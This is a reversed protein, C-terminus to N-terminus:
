ESVGNTLLAWRMCRDKAGGTNTTFTDTITTFGTSTSGYAGSVGLAELATKAASIASNLQELTPNTGTPSASAADIDYNVGSLTLNSGTGTPVACATTNTACGTSTLTACTTPDSVLEAKAFTDGGAAEALIEAALATAALFKVLNKQETNTISTNLAYADYLAVRKTSSATAALSAALKNIASVGKGKGFASMFAKMGAGNEDLTTFALEAIRIDADDTLKNYMERACTFNGDDLCARAVSLYQERSTPSDFPGYINCASLVAALAVFSLAFRGM